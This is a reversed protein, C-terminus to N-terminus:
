AYVMCQGLSSCFLDELDKVMAGDIEKNRSSIGGHEKARKDFCIRNGSIDGENGNPTERNERNNKVRDIQFLIFYEAHDAIDADAPRDNEADLIDKKGETGCAKREQKGTTYDISETSYKVLETYILFIAVADEM